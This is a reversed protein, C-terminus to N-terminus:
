EIHIALEALNWRDEHNLWLIIEEKESQTLYSPKGKYFIKLGNVEWTLFKKNWKSIFGLSVNLLKRIQSYSIGSVSWKVALAPKVERADSNRQIFNELAQKKPKLVQSDM